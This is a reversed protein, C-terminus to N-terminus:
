RHLFRDAVQGTAIARCDDVEITVHEPRTPRGVRLPVGLAVDDLAAVADDRTNAFSRPCYENHTCSSNDPTMSATTSSRPSPLTASEPAATGARRRRRAVARCRCRGSRRRRRATAIRGGRTGRARGRGARCSRRATPGRIQPSTSLLPYRHTAHAALHDDDRTRGPPLALGLRPHEDGFAGLHQHAVHEVVLALRDASLM